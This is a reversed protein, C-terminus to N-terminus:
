GYLSEISNNVSRGSRKKIDVMFKPYRVVSGIFSVNDIDRKFPNIYIHEEDEQFVIGISDHDLKHSFLEKHKPKVTIHVLEM